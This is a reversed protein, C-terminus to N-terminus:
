VTNFRLTIQFQLNARLVYGGSGAGSASTAITFTNATVGTVVHGFPRNITADELAGSPSTVYKRIIIKEGVVIQHAAATTITLTTGAGAGSAVQYSDQPLGNLLSGDHTRLSLTFQSLNNIMGTSDYIRPFYNDIRKIHILRQPNNFDLRLEALINSGSPFTASTLTDIEDLTVVLLPEVFASANLIGLNPVLAGIVDISRINRLTPMSGAYDMGFINTTGALYTRFQYSYPFTAVDRASSSARIVFNKPAPEPAGPVPDATKATEENGVLIRNMRRGVLANLGGVGTIVHDGQINENYITKMLQILSTRHNDDRPNYLPVNPLIEENINDANFFAPKIVSAPNSGSRRVSGM